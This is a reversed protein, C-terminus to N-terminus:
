SRRGRTLLIATALAAALGAGAVALLWSPYGTPPQPTTQPPTPTTSTATTPEAGRMTLSLLVISTDSEEPSTGPKLYETLVAYVASGLSYASSFPPLGQVALAEHSIAVDLPEILVPNLGRDLIYLYYSVNRPYTFALAVLYGGHLTLTIFYTRRPAYMSVRTGNWSLKVLGWDGSVYAYGEGDFVVANACSPLHIDDIVLLRELSGGYVEVYWLNDASGVVWLHETRPNTAASLPYDVKGPRPDHEVYTLLELSRPDRREVRWYTGGGGGEPCAGAVILDGGYPVVHLAKGGVGEVRRLEELTDPSLAALDWVWTRNAVRYGALYLTGGLITCSRWFVGEWTVPGAVLAGSNLERVELRSGWLGRERIYSYYVVYLRGGYLCTSVLLDPGESPNLSWRRVVDVRYYQTATSSLLLLAGLLAICYM